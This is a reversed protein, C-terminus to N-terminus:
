AGQVGLPMLSHYRRLQGGGYGVYDLGNGRGPGYGGPWYDDCVKGKARGWAIGGGFATNSYTHDVNDQEVVDWRLIEELTLM